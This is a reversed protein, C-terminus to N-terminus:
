MTHLCRGPPTRVTCFIDLTCAVELGDEFWQLLNRVNHLCMCVSEHLTLSAAYPQKCHAGVTTESLIPKCKFHM